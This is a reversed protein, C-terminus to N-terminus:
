GSLRRLPRHSRPREIHDSASTVLDVNRKQESPEVYRIRDLLDLSTEFVDQAWCASSTSTRVEAMRAVADDILAEISTPNSHSAAATTGTFRSRKGRHARYAARTARGAIREPAAVKNVQRPQDTSNREHGNSSWRRRTL